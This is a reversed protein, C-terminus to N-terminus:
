VKQSNLARRLERNLRLLASEHKAILERIQDVDSRVRPKRQAALAQRKRITEWRNGADLWAYLEGRKLYSMGGLTQVEPFDDHRQHWNTVTARSVGLDRAAESLCLYDTAKDLSVPM